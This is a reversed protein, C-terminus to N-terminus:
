HRIAPVAVAAADAPVGAGGDVRRAAGPVVACGAM